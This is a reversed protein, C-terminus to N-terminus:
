LTKLNPHNLKAQENCALISETGYEEYYEADCEECWHVAGHHPEDPYEFELEELDKCHECVKKINTIHSHWEARRAENSVEPINLKEWITYPMNGCLECRATYDDGPVIFKPKECTCYDDNAKNSM